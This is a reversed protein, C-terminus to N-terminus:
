LDSASDELFSLALDPGDRFSKLRLVLQIQYNFDRTTPSKEEEMLLILIGLWGASKFIIIKRVERKTPYTLENGQSPRTKKLRDLLDLCFPQTFIGTGYLLKSEDTARENPCKTALQNTTPAIICFVDLAKSTSQLLHVPTPPFVNSEWSIKTATFCDLLLIM